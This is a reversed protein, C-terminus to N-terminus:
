GGGTVPIVGTTTTGTRINNWAVIEEKITQAVEANKKATESLQSAASKIQGILIWMGIIMTILFIFGLMVTGYKEIFKLKQYSAQNTRAMAVHFMRVDRDIPEIDLMALKTDFDGHVANYLYGDSGKVFMYTNRGVKRGYATLFAGGVLTKLVEDGTASLKIRRARTSLTKQYGAGSVNEYVEVKRNYTKFFLILTVTLVLIIGIVVVLLIYIWSSSLFGTIDVKPLSVGINGIEVGLIQSM